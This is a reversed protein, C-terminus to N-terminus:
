PLIAWCKVSSCSFVGEGLAANHLDTQRLICAELPKHANATSLCLRNSHSPNFLIFSFIYNQWVFCLCVLHLDISESIVTAYGLVLKKYLKLIM